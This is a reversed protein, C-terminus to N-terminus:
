SFTESMVTKRSDLTVKEKKLKLCKCYVKTLINTTVDEQLSSTNLSEFRPKKAWLEAPTLKKGKRSSPLKRLQAPLQRQSM